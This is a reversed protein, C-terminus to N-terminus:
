CFIIHLLIRLHLSYFVLSLFISLSSFLGFINLLIWLNNRSTFNINFLFANWYSVVCMGVAVCAGWGAM